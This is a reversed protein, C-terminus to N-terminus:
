QATRTSCALKFDAQSGDVWFQTTHLKCEFVPSSIIKYAGLPLEEREGNVSVLVSDRNVAVLGILLGIGKVDYTQNTRLTFQEEREVKDFLLTKAEEMDAKLARVADTLDRREADCVTFMTQLAAKAKREEDLQRTTDENKAVLESADKINESISRIAALTDDFKMSKLFAVYDYQEKCQALAAEKLALEKQGQNYGLYYAAAISGAILPAVWYVHQGPDM